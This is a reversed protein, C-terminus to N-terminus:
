SFGLMKQKHEWFEQPTVEIAIRPDPDVISPEGCGNLTGLFARGMM